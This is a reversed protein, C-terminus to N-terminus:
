FGCLYLFNILASCNSINFSPVSLFIVFFVKLSLTSLALPKFSTLSKLLVPFSVLIVLKLGFLNFLISEFKSM